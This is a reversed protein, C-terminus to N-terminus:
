KRKGNRIRAKKQRIKKQVKSDTAGIHERMYLEKKYALEEDTNRLSKKTKRFETLLRMTTMKKLREPVEINQWAIIEELRNDPMVDGYTKEFKLKKEGCVVGIKPVNNELKIYEIVGRRWMQENPKIEFLKQPKRVRVVMGVYLINDGWGYRSLGGTENFYFEEKRYKEKLSNEREQRLRSIKEEQTDV